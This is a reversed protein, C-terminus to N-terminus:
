VVYGLSMVSNFINESTESEEEGAIDVTVHNKPMITHDFSGNIIREYALMINKKHKSYEEEIRDDFVVRDKGKSNSMFFLIDPRLDKLGCIEICASFSAEDVDKGGCQYAFSSYHWRDCIVISGEALLNRIHSALQNRAAFMLLLETVPSVTEQYKDKVTKRIAEAMATGGPERFIYVKTDPYELSLKAYLRQSQVTKGCNDLGEFVIFM